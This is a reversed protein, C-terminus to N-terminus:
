NDFLTAGSIPESLLIQGAGKSAALMATKVVRCGTRKMCNGSRRGQSETERATHTYVVGKAAHTSKFANGAWPRVRSAATKKQPRARALNM